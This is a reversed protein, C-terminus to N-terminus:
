QSSGKLAALLKKQFRQGRLVNLGRQEIQRAREVTVDLVTGIQEYTKEKKGGFGYRERIAQVSRPREKRLQALAQGVTDRLERDEAVDSPLLARMKNADSDLLLAIEAGDLRVTSVSNEVALVADPFLEEFALGHFEMLKKVIDRPEGNKRFPGDRMSELSCYSSVNGIRARECFERQNLGLEMRRQKLRNNRVKITLELEKFPGATVAEGEEGASRRDM